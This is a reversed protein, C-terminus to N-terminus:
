QSQKYATYVVGLAIVNLVAFVTIQVRLARNKEETYAMMEKQTTLRLNSASLKRKIEALKTINDGISKNGIVHNARYGDVRTARENAVANLIELLSQLRKNINITIDKVAMSLKVDADTNSAILKLFKALSYSYRNEYFCYEKKVKQYFETDVRIQDDVKDMKQPWLSPTQAKLNQIQIALIEVPVRELKPDLDYGSFSVGNTFTDSVTTDDITTDAVCGDVPGSLTPSDKRFSYDTATSM